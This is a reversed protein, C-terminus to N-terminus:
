IVRGEHVCGSKRYIKECEEFFCNVDYLRKYLVSLLLVWCSSGSHFLRMNQVPFPVIGVAFETHFGDAAFREVDNPATHEIGDKNRQVIQRMFVVKERTLLADTQQFHATRKEFFVAFLEHKVEVDSVVCVICFRLAQGLAVIKGGAQLARQIFVACPLGGYKKGGGDACVIQVGGAAFANQAALAGIGIGVPADDFLADLVDGRTGGAGISVDDDACSFLACAFFDDAEGIGEGGM